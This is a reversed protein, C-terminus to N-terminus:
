AFASAIIALLTGFENVISAQVPSPLVLFSIIVVALVIATVRRAQRYRPSLFFPKIKEWLPDYLFLFALYKGQVKLWELTKRGTDSM